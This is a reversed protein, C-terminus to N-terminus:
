LKGTTRGFLKPGGSFEQLGVELREEVLALGEEREGLEAKEKDDEGGEESTLDLGGDGLSVGALGKWPWDGFVTVRLDWDIINLM